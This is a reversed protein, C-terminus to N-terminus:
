WSQKDEKITMYLFTWRELLLKEIEYYHQYVELDKGKYFTKLEDLVDMIDEIRQKEYQRTKIELKMDKGGSKKGPNDSGTPLLAKDFNLYLRQM